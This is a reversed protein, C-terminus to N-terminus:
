GRNRAASRREELLLWPLIPGSQSPKILAADLRGRLRHGSAWVSPSRRLRVPSSASASMQALVVSPSSVGPTAESTTRLGCPHRSPGALGESEMGLRVALEDMREGPAPNVADPMAREVAVLSCRIRHVSM